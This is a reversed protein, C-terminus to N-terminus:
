RAADTYKREQNPGFEDLHKGVQWPTDAGSFPGAQSMVNPPLDDIKIVGNESLTCVREIVNELERVNGPWTYRIMRELSRHDMRRIETATKSAYKQLFHDVLLPIDELRERLPPIDIPIVALRYYLDERFTGDKLKPQLRENT